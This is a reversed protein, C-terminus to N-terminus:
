KKKEFLEEAVPAGLRKTITARIAQIFEGYEIKGDKNLDFGPNQAAVTQASLTSTQLIYSHPKGLAAPWFNITYLDEVSNIRNAYRKYYKYVFDLQQVNSMLYLKQNTTGLGEATRPMFQILGTARKAARDYPDETDGRQKNVAQHNMGSELQMVTMLWNPHIGLLNSIQVVRQIFQQKNQRVNNEFLLMAKNIFTQLKLPTGTKIHSM